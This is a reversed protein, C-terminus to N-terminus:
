GVAEARGRRFRVYALGLLVVGVLLTVIMGTQFLGWLAAVQDGTPAPRGQLERQIAVRRFGWDELQDWALAIMGSQLAGIGLGLLPGAVRCKLILVGAVLTGVGVLTTIAFAGLENEPGFVPLPPLGETFRVMSKTGSLIMGVGILMTWWRETQKIPAAVTHTGDRETISLAWAGPTSRAWKTGAAEVVVFAFFVVAWHVDYGARGAIWLLPAVVAAFVLYDVYVALLRRKKSAVPDMAVGRSSVGSGLFFIVVGWRAGSGDVGRFGAACGRWGGAGSLACGVERARCPVGLGVLGVPM